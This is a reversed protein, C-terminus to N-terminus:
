QGAFQPFSRRTCVRAQIVVLVGTVGGWGWVRALEGLKM